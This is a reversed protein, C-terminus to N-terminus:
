YNGGWGIDAKANGPFLLRLMVRTLSFSFVDIFAM